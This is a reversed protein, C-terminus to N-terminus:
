ANVPNAAKWAWPLLDDLSNVPHGDLMRQLVDALYAYPEVGNLKATEVLSCVIAWRGGGGDSGAFLHNKRGLAVPRIAREVPNTDLEVRGDYLFRMLGERRSLTYRIAEALTSRGPIRPLQAELWARLDTVIPKSRQRRAILRHAPSQGRVEAEVAYIESIRRLAEDAVPSGTAEAVEYFKRRTHAWCAALVIDGKATLQEFGAYGDVHLVGKFHQLHSVPREAKRDPAFLYVAAPPEPGAWPRQERAYVWLRGTKTRGRGPDLVPVPTDDAFLHDSAFVNRALREHLAELWWCAGGIWGALTSRALDVGHRAFIQSQRYLPTHDCYKSVLVQALLAPTALGGAILREPAPAQTVTECTRCAYKPRVTRIVRLQAPVWDLMESVSEGIVHLAGGCCACVADGIDLRIDERPLHNPLPKRHSPREPSLNRVVPRSARIRAIDADLDELALALQDPDLRESRRGFQARQLKKIISQLREIEGDRSEVAAAMDRLLRQLFAPDSPLNDLDILM